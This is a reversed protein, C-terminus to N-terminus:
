FLIIKQKKFDKLNIKGNMNSIEFFCKNKNQHRIGTISNYKEKSSSEENYDFNINIKNQNIASFKCSIQDSIFLDIDGNISKIDIFSSSGIEGIKVKTNGDKNIIIIDSSNFSRVNLNIKSKESELRLINGYFNINANGKVHKLEIDGLYKTININGKHSTIYIKLLMFPIYIKLNIIGKVREPIKTTICLENENKIFLTNLLNIDNRFGSNIIKNTEIEILDNSWGIIDINGNLSEIRLIEIPNKERYKTQISKNKKFISINCSLILFINILLLIKKMM